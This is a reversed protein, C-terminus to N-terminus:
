EFIETYDSQHLQSLDKEVNTGYDVKEYYNKDYQNDINDYLENNEKRLNQNVEIKSM